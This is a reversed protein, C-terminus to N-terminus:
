FQIGKKGALLFTFMRNGRKDLFFKAREEVASDNLTAKYPEPALCAAV